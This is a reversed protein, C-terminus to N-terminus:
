HGKVKKGIVCCRYGMLDGEMDALPLVQREYSFKHEEEGCYEYMGFNPWKEIDVQLPTSLLCTTQRIALHVSANIVDFDIYSSWHCMTLDPPGMCIWVNLNMVLLCYGPIYKIYGMCNTVIFLLKHRGHKPNRLNTTFFTSSLIHLFITFIQIDSFVFAKKRLSDMHIKVPFIKKMTQHDKPNIVNWWLYRISYCSWIIEFNDYM